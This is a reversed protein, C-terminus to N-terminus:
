GAPLRVCFVAGGAAGPRYSVEGGALRGLSAVIALGLGAGAPRPRTGAASGVGSAAVPGARSFRDFLRPVFDVPVGPGADTIRVEVHDGFREGEVIVPRAGYTDANILLNVMIRRLHEPDATVTLDHPCSVLVGAVGADEIASQAEAAVNVSLAAVQVAGAEIRSLELLEDVLRSLRRSQRVLVEVLQRRDHEPLRDWGNNLTEAAGVIGSIPNRLEHSATAIFSQLAAAEDSSTV